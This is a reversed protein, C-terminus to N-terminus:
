SAVSQVSPKKKLSQVKSLDIEVGALELQNIEKMAFMSCVTVLKDIGDVQMLESIAEDSICGNEDIKCDFETGDSYQVGDVAKLSVRITEVAARLPEILEVGASQKFLSLLRAKDGWSLPAIWFTAAGIKVPIRDTLKYVVM